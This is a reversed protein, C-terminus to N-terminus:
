KGRAQKENILLLIYIRRAMWIGRRDGKAFPSAVGFGM